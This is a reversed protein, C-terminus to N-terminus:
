SVGAGLCHISKTNNLWIDFDFVFIEVLMKYFIHAPLVM